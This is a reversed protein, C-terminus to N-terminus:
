ITDLVVTVYERVLVNFMELFVITSIVVIMLHLMNWFLSYM